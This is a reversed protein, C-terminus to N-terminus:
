LRDILKQITSGLEKPSKSSDGLERFSKRFAPTANPFFRDFGKNVEGWLEAAMFGTSQKEEDFLVIM